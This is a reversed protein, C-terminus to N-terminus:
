KLLKEKNQKNERAKGRSVKTKTEKIRKVKKEM